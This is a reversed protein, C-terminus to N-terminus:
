FGMMQPITSWDPRNSIRNKDQNSSKYNYFQHRINRDRREAVISYRSPEVIHLMSGKKYTPKKVGFRILLIKCREENREDESYDRSPTYEIKGDGALKNRVRAASSASMGIASALCKLRIPRSNAVGCGTEQSKLLRDEGDGKKETKSIPMTFLMENVINYLEKLTYNKKAKFKCFMGERYKRGKRSVEKKAKLKFSHIWVRVSGDLNKKVTCLDSSLIDRYIREAKKQGVGFWKRLMYTNVKLIASNPHQMKLWVLVCVLEKKEKAEKGKLGRFFSKMMDVEINLNQMM